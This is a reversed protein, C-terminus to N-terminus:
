FKIKCKNMPTNKVLLSLDRSRIIHSSFRYRACTATFNYYRILLSPGASLMQHFLSLPLLFPPIRGNSLKKMLIWITPPPPPLPPIHSPHPPPGLQRSFVVVFFL